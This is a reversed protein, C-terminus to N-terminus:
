CLVTDETGFDAFPSDKKSLDLLLNIYTDQNLKTVFFWATDGAGPKEKSPDAARMLGKPNGKVEPVDIRLRTKEGPKAWDGVLRKDPEAKSVDSLPELSPVCGSLLVPLGVLWLAHRAM